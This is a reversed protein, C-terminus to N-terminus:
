MCVCVCMCMCVCVCVCMCMCVCVCVCVCVIVCVIVCLSFSVQNGIEVETFHYRRQWPMTCNVNLALKFRYQEVQETSGGLARFTEARDSLSIMEGDLVVLNPNNFLLASLVRLKYTMQKYYNKHTSNTKIGFAM